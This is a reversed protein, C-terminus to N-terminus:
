SRPASTGARDLQEFTLNLIPYTQWNQYDYHWWEYPYVTFGESEMADRLLNRRWRQLSTGGLYDPYSRESMEDYSGTMEVPKGTKLNYLTLDVACGRNHRSGEAPNAVFIKEKDPTADWFMKTVYWPRYADHILLGYGFPRLKKAARAMAKAAPRQLFARPELYLPAGMFNRDTAYRIDLRITPDYVTVNVLDPALFKGPEVPPHAALAQRRLAAVHQAAATKFVKQQAKSPQRPFVTDGIKVSTALGNADRTFVATQGRYLGTAPFRFVNPSVQELPGSEIKGALVRLKGHDELVNRRNSEPGFEGILGSWVAPLPLPRPPLPTWVAAPPHPPNAAATLPQAAPLATGALLGTAAISLTASLLTSMAGPM